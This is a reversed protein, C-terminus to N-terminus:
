LLMVAAKICKKWQVSTKISGRGKQPDSVDGLNQPFRDLHCFLFHMKVSM